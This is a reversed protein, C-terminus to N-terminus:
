HVYNRRVKKSTILLVIYFYLYFMILNAYTNIQGQVFYINICQFLLIFRYRIDSSDYKTMHLDLYKIFMGFFIMLLAGYIGFNVYLEGGIGTRLGMKTNKIKALISASNLERILDTDLGLFLRWFFPRPFSIPINLLGKGYLFDDYSYMLVILQRYENFTRYIVRSQIINLNKSAEITNISGSRKMAFSASIIMLISIVIAITLLKKINIDDKKTMYYFILCYLITIFAYFRIDLLFLQIISIILLFLIYRKKDEKLYIYVFMMSAIVNCKWLLVAYSPIIESVRSASISYYSSSLLPIFGLKGISIASGTLGAILFIIGVLRNNIIYITRNKLKKYKNRFIYYGFFFSSMLVIWFLNTRRIDGYYYNSNTVFNVVHYNVNGITMFTFLFVFYIFGIGGNINNKDNSSYRFFLLVMIFGILFISLSHLEINDPNFIFYFIIISFLVLYIVRKNQTGTKDRKILM